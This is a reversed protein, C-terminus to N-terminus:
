RVEKFTVRPTAAPNSPDAQVTVQYTQQPRTVILTFTFIPRTVDRDVQDNKIGAKINSLGGHAALFNTLMTQVANVQQDTLSTGYLADLGDIQVSPAQSAIEPVKNLSDSVSEGTVADIYPVIGDKSLAAASPSNTAQNTAPRQPPTTAISIAVVIVIVSIFAALGIYFQRTMM